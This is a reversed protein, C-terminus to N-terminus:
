GASAPPDDGAERLYPMLLAVTALSLLVTFGISSYLKYAVWTAEPFSYAVYLNLAGVVLFNVTWLRDLRLWAAAPLQLQDGMTEEMISRGTRLRAVVFVAALGWNFITPKWQIFIQNRLVLTAGGFVFVLVALILLRRELRGSLLRTLVVQAATAIMLVATATYIGDFHYNWGGLSVARGDMRYAVFFLVVPILDAIQKM